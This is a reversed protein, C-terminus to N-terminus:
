IRIAEIYTPLINHAKTTVFSDILKIYQALTVWPWIYSWIFVNSPLEAFISKSVGCDM